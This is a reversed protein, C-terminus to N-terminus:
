GLEVRIAMTLECLPGCDSVNAFSIEPCALSSDMRVARWGRLVDVRWGRLVDLGGCLIGGYWLKSGNTYTSLAIPSLLTVEQQQRQQRQEGLRPM